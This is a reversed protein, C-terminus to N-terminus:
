GQAMGVNPVYPLFNFLVTHGFPSEFAGSKLPLMIPKDMEVNLRGGGNQILPYDCVIAANQKAYIADFTVDANDAISQVGSTHSFYATAEMDVDFSGATSSFAGLTGQAKNGSVNNKITAKWETIRAFLPTPNLTAPDLLAMRIRYVNSATNFADESLAAVIAAGVEASVPGEAGTRTNHTMGVGKIDVNVKDTLPSNWTLENYVYGDIYESQRGDEDRGLTREVTHSYKVIDDPDSENKVVTGFFIQLTTGAGDDGAGVNFTTKDLTIGDADASKVRAYGPLVAGFQNGAAQGGVFVYEGPQFGFTTCDIAASALRAIGGIVSISVDNAPFQYGCVQVIQGAEATEDILASATSIHTGDTIGNCLHLGNNAANAFGKAFLLHGSLFDASSDVTFDDTAAVAAVNASNPKVRAAAFCFGEITELMNNQTVDENWGGDATLDVIAGKKRQRSPNFPRRALTTYEGGLDSFSNPERTVFIPSGPLVRNSAERAVFLGVNNSDQTEISM